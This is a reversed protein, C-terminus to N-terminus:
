TLASRWACGNKKHVARSGRWEKRPERNSLRGDAM